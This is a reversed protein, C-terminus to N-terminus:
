GDALGAVVATFFEKIEKTRGHRAILSAAYWAAQQNSIQAMLNGAEKREEKAELILKGMWHAISEHTDPHHLMGDREGAFDGQLTEDADGYGCRLCYCLDNVLEADTAGDYDPDGKNELRQDNIAEQSIFVTEGCSRCKITHETWHRM